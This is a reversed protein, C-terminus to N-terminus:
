PPPTIQSTTVVENWPGDPIAEDDYVFRWNTATITSVGLCASLAPSVEMGAGFNEKNRPRMSGFVYRFDYMGWPGADEWQAYCTAAGYTIKVWRNKVASELPGYDAFAAWPVISAVNPRRVGSSTFDDYPLAVYFPNELPTFSPWYPHLPDLSRAFPDDIGGFHTVWDSDWASTARSLPGAEGADAGVWFITTPVDPHMRYLTQASSSRLTNTSGEHATVWWYIAGSSNYRALRLIGRWESATPTYSRDTLEGTKPFTFVQQLAASGSFRIRYTRTAEGADSWTFQPLTGPYADSNAGPTKLALSAPLGAPHRPHDALVDRAAATALPVYGKSEARDYFTDINKDANPYDVVLVPKGAARVRDLLPVATRTYRSKQRRDVDFWIAEALAGSVTAIYADSALLDLGNEPMVVLDPNGSALRAYAAVAQVLAIMDSAATAQREGSPLRGQPGWFLYADVGELVIGDFGQALTRDVFADPSGILVQLWAPDWYKVRYIGPRSPDEDGLWSPHLEPTEPAVWAPNWYSRSSEAEGIRVVALVVKGSAKLDAIEQPTWDGAATGDRSPDIIAIAYASQAVAMPDVNRIQYLFSGEPLSAAASVQAAAVGAIAGAILIVAWTKTM